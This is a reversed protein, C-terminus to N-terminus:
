LFNIISKSVNKSKTKKEKEKETKEKIIKEKVVKEKVEKVIPPYIKLYTAEFNAYIYGNMYYLYPLTIIPKIWCKPILYKNINEPTILLEVNETNYVKLTFKNLRTPLKIKISNDFGEKSPPQLIKKYITDFVEQEEIKIGLIRETNEFLLSGIYLEIENLKDYMLKVKDNTKIDKFSLQVHYKIDKKKVFKEEPNNLQELTPYQSYGFPSYLKEGMLVLPQGNYLLEIKKAITNGMTFESISGIKLKSADFTTLQTASM